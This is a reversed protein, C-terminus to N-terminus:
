VCGNVAGVLHETNFASVLPASGRRVLDNIEDQEHLETTECRRTSVCWCEDEGGELGYGAGAVVM